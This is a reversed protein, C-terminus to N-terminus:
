LNPLLPPRCPHEYSESRNKSAIVLNHTMQCFKKKILFRKKLKLPIILSITLVIQTDMTCPPEYSESRNESAIVLNHTM